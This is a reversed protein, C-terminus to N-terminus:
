KIKEAVLRGFPELIEVFASAHQPYEDKIFDGLLQLVQMAVALPAVKTGSKTASAVLKSYSDSLKTMVDVKEGPSMKESTKIAELISESQIAFNEILANTLEGLGGAAMRAANRAVDWDDGVEEAKAKWARATGYPIGVMNAADKISLRKYIYASRLAQKTEEGYAM